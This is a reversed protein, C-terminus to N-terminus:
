LEVDKKTPYELESLTMSLSIFPLGSEMANFNETDGGFNVVCNTIGCSKYRLFPKSTDYLPGSYFEVKWKPPPSIVVKGYSGLSSKRFVNLISILEREEEKNAPKLFDWSFNQSRKQHGSFLSKDHPNDIGGGLLGTKAAIAIESPVMGGLAGSLAKYGKWVIYDGLGQQLKGLGEISQYEGTLSDSVPKIPLTISNLTINVPKKEVEKLDKKVEAKKDNKLEEVNPMIQIEAIPYFRVFSIQNERDNILNKLKAPFVLDPGIENKFIEKFNKKQSEATAM